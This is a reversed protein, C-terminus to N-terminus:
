HLSASILISLLEMNCFEIALFQIEGKETEGWFVISSFYFNRKSIIKFSLYPSQNNNDIWDNVIKNSKM